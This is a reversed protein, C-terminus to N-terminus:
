QGNRVGSPVGQSLEQASASGAAKPSALVPKAFLLHGRASQAEPVGHEFKKEYPKDPLLDHMESDTFVFWRTGLSKGAADFFTVECRVETLRMHPFISVTVEKNNIDLSAEWFVSAAWANQIGLPIMSIMMLMLWLGKCSYRYAM